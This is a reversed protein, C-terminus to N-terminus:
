SVYHESKTTRDAKRAAGWATMKGIGGAIRTALRISATRSIFFIPTIIILSLIAVAFGRAAMPLWIFSDSEARIRVWNQGGKFSRKLLWKVKMRSCPIDEFVCAENSWYISAGSRAARSFFLTDEAGSMAFRADFKGGALNVVDRRLLVNGTRSDEWGIQTNSTYRKRGFIQSEIVWAPPPSEYRPIVPGCVIDANTILQTRILEALWNPAPVEDDDIFVIFETKLELLCRNRAHSVGAASEIFYNITWPFPPEAALVVDRGSACPDNDVVIIQVADLQINEQRWLGNLLKQLGVARRFTCIAVTLGEKKLSKSKDISRMDKDADSEFQSM